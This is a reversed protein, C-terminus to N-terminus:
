LENSSGKTTDTKAIKKKKLNKWREPFVDDPIMMEHRFSWPQIHDRTRPLDEFYFASKPVDWYIPSKEIDCTTPSSPGVSNGNKSNNYGSSTWILQVVYRYEGEIDSKNNSQRKKNRERQM